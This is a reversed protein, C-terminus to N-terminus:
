AALPEVDVIGGVDKALDADVEALQRHKEALEAAFAFEGGDGHARYSALRRNADALRQRYREQEHDFGSLAHELRTSKERPM